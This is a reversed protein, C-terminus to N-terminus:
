GVKPTVAVYNDKDLYLVVRLCDFVTPVHAQLKNYRKLVVYYPSGFEIIAQAREIVDGVLNPWETKIPWSANAKFSSFIKEHVTQNVDSASSWSDTEEM